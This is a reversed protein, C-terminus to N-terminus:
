ARLWDRVTKEICDLLTPLVKGGDAGMRQVPGVVSIAALPWGAKDLVPAAATVIGSEADLRLAYGRDRVQQLEAEIAAFDVILPTSRGPDTIPRVSRKSFALLVRGATSTYIPLPQGTQPVYRLPHTSEICDVALVLGPQERSGGIEVALIVTEGTQRGIAEITSRLASRLPVDGVAKTAVRYSLALLRPGLVYRRGIAEIYGTKLLMQLLTSLTSKAIGLAVAIETHTPPNQALAVHEIVLVVRELGTVGEIEPVAAAIQEVESVPILWGM